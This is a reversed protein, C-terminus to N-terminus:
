ILSLLRHRSSVALFQVAYSAFGRHLCILGRSAYVSLGIVFRAEFQCIQPQEASGPYNAWIVCYGRDCSIHTDEGPLLLWSANGRSGRSINKNVNCGLFPLGLPKCECLNSHCSPICCGVPWSAQSQPPNPRGTLKLSPFMHAM